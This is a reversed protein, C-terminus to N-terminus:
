KTETHHVLAAIVTEKILANLVKIGANAVFAVSAMMVPKVVMQNKVQTFENPINVDPTTCNIDVMKFITGM